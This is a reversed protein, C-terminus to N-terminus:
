LEEEVRFLLGVFLSATNKEGKRNPPLIKSYKKAM